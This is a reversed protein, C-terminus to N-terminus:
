CLQRHQQWSPSVMRPLVASPSICLWRQWSNLWEMHALQDPYSSGTRIATDDLLIQGKSWHFLSAANRILIQDMVGRPFCGISHLCDGDEGTPEVWDKANLDPWCNLQWIPQFSMAVRQQLKLYGLARDMLTAVKMGFIELYKNLM